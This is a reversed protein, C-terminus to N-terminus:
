GVVGLLLDIQYFAFVEVTSCQLLHSLSRLMLPITRPPVIRGKRPRLAMIESPDPTWGLLLDVRIVILWKELHVQKIEHVQNKLWNSFSPLIDIALVEIVDKTLEALHIILTVLENV